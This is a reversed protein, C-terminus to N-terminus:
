GLMRTYTSYRRMNPLMSLTWTLLFVSKQLLTPVHTLEVLKQTYILNQVSLWRLTPLAAPLELKVVTSPSILPSQFNLM